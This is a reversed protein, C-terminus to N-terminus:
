AVLAESSTLLQHAFHKISRSLLLSPHSSVGFALKLDEMPGGAKFEREAASYEYTHQEIEVPHRHCVGIQGTYLVDGNTVSAFAQPSGPQIFTM